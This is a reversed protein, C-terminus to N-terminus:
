CFYHVLNVSVTWHLSFISLAGLFLPSIQTFALVSYSNTFSSPLLCFYLTSITLILLKSTWMSFSHNFHGLSSTRVVCAFWHSFGLNYPLQTHGGWGGLFLSFMLVSSGEEWWIAWYAIHAPFTPQRVLHSIFFWSSSISHLLQFSSNFCKVRFCKTTPWMQTIHLPIWFHHM